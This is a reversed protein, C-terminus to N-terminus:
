SFRHRQAADAQEAVQKIDQAEDLALRKIEDGAALLRRRLAAREVLRAYVEAYVSTPTQNVLETLYAPGGIDTLKDKLEASLTLTDLPEGREHLREMAQWILAHRVLFFDQAKLIRAVASFQDPGVILAGLVAAEAEESRPPAIMETFTQTDTKM